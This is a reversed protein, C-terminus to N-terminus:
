VLKDVSGPAAPTAPKPAYVGTQPNAPPPPPTDTKTAATNTQAQSQPPSIQQLSASIPGAASVSMPHYEEPIFAAGCICAL